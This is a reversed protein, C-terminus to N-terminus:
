SAHGEATPKGKCDGTRRRAGSVFVGPVVTGKQRAFAGPHRELAHGSLLLELQNM